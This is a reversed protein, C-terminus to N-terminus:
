EPVFSQNVRVQRIQRSDREYLRLVVQVSRLPREYPPVTEREGVDDPGLRLFNGDTYHGFDDIGNTGEDILLTGIGDGDDLQWVGAEVEDGDENVGNNEYHFSWTDYVAYGPALQNQFVDRLARAPFFWPEIAPTFASAFAPAPLEAPRSPTEGLRRSDFGYGLDVYAGQGVFPFVVTTTGNNTGIAGSGDNRMNDNSVYAATWASDTPELVTETALHMFLPAGPDYVRLDFGLVDTLMVDEGRRNGREGWLPVPGHIVRIVQGQDNLMANATATTDGPEDVFAFPRISYNFNRNAPLPNLNTANISYAGVMGSLSGLSTLRATAQAPTLPAPLEADRVFQVPANGGSYGSGTSIAAFAFRRVSPSTAGSGVAFGYHGYRNERKTLDGLTNAVIKWRGGGAQDLLPDFELRVSLDYREQFAVLAALAEDVEDADISDPLIRVLGPKAVFIPPQGNIEFTDTVTGDAATFRYPNIWPAVLLARRYITRLGPEGYYGGTPDVLNGTADVFSGPNEVAFWIVEALPSEITQTEWDGFPEGDDDNPRISSPGLKGHEPVRGVFPERENRVTLMLVDDADGLGAGDTIWQGTTAAAAPTVLPVNSTPLISTAHDIEPNLETPPWVGDILNTAQGERYPGEVIEIYGQNEEPRQWVLGPCTAGQLDQQLVNRVHRLQGSIEVVARRNRVSNSVNAFLTVVAGMMVLTIAMAILM